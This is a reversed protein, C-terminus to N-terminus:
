QAYRNSVKLARATDEVCEDYRKAGESKEADYLAEKLAVAVKAIPPMAPVKAFIVILDSRLKEINNRCENQVSGAAAAQSPAASPAVVARPTAASPVQSAKPQASKVRDGKTLFMYGDMVIVLAIGLAFISYVTWKFGQFIKEGISSAPANSSSLTAESEASKSLTIPSAAVQPQQQSEILKAVATGCAACFKANDNSETGCQSCFM